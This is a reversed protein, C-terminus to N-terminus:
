ALADLIHQQFFPLTSEWRSLPGIQAAPSSLGKQVAECAYIDELMVNNSQLPHDTWSAARIGAFPGKASVIHRPLEPAAGAPLPARDLAEPMARARSHVLSERASVPIVHFTAWSTATEYIAVGPFLWYYAAGFTPPVGEVVPLPLKDHVIGPKLPRYFVIHRGSPAWRQPFFDGDGLSVPHLLPLHYGDIFNEVIVKWNAQVRYLIKSVEVLREPDFPGSQGPIHPGMREPTDGLWEEFQQAGPDANVFVLNKWTGVGAPFLGLCSKDLGAFQDEEFTVAALRGDLEYSWRHYFCTLRRGLKGEGELLRAGRHRCTNHFARLQGGTDRLLILSAAGTEVVRYSGPEPVDEAMGAFVWAHAFLKSQERRFWEDSNYAEVPLLQRPAETARLPSLDRHTDM